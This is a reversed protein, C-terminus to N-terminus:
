SLVPSILRVGTIEQAREVVVSVIKMAVGYVFKIDLCLTKQLMENLSVWSM